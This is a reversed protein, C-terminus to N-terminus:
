MMRDTLAVDISVNGDPADIPVDFALLYGTGCELTPWSAPGGGSGYLLRDATVTEGQVTAWARRSVGDLVLSTNPPLYSVVQESEWEETPFVEPDLGDPNPYARIRVQRAALAGTSITITPVVTLWRAVEGEPVIAWYRRWVGVTEICDDILQPPSPAAPPPPCDPDALLDFSGTPMDFQISPSEHPEGVWEYFHQQTAPFSGDFYPLGQGVTVMAGDMRVTDGAGLSSGPLNMLKIAAFEAGAPAVATVQVRTWDGVPATVPDASSLDLLSGGGDFWEIFPVVEAVSSPMLFMSATYVGGEAVEAGSTGPATGALYAAVGPTSLLVLTASYNGFLGGTTRYLVGAGAPRHSVWGLVGRGTANTVSNNATGTWSFDLDARDPTGGDFYDGPSTNPNPQTRLVWGTWPGDYSGISYRARWEYSTGPNLGGVSVSSGMTLDTVATQGLVRRQVHYGDVSSVGSPPALSVFAASGAANPTVDFGPPDAPLTLANAAAGWAGWGVANRGRARFYYRNGPALGTFTTTGTSTVTIPSTFSSSLSAQAQWELVSSGGDGQGTFRYRMTTPTIQDLLGNTPADPAKPIRAATYTREGVSTPGGLGQTGTAGIGGNVKFSLYGAANHPIYVSTFDLVVRTGGGTSWSFNHSRSDHTISAWVNASGVFTASNVNRLEVQVRYRSSNGSTGAPNVHLRITAGLGTSVDWYAM